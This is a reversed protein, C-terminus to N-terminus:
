TRIQHLRDTRAGRRLFLAIFAAQVLALMTLSCSLAQVLGIAGESLRGVLLLTLGVYVIAHMIACLVLKDNQGIAIVVQSTTGVCAAAVGCILMWTFLTERHVFSPGYFSFLFESLVALGSAVLLSIATSVMLLRFVFRKLRSVDQTRAIQVVTQIVFNSLVGAFIAVALSWPYYAVFSALEEAGEAHRLMFLCLGHIPGGLLSPIVVATFTQLYGEAPTEDVPNRPAVRVYIYGNTALVCVCYTFLFAGIGFIAGTSLSLAISVPVGIVSAV